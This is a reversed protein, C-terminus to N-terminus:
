QPTYLGHQVATPRGPSPAAHRARNALEEDGFAFYSAVEPSAQMLPRIGICTRGQRIAIM